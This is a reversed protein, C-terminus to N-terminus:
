DDICNTPWGILLLYVTTAPYNFMLQRWTRNTTVVSDVCLILVRDDNMLLVFCRTRFNILSLKDIFKGM